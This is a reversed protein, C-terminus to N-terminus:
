TAARRARAALILEELEPGNLAIDGTEAHIHLDPLPEAPREDALFLLAERATDFSRSPTDTGWFQLTCHTSGHDRLIDFAADTTM